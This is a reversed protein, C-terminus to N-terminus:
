HHTYNSSLGIEGARLPTVPMSYFQKNGTVILFIYLLLLFFLIPLYTPQFKLSNNKWIICTEHYSYNIPLQFPLNFKLTPIKQTFVKQPQTVPILCSRKPRVM